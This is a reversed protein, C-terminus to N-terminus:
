IGDAGIYDSESMPGKRKAFKGTLEGDVAFTVNCEQKKTIAKYVHGIRLIESSTVQVDGEVFRDFQYKATTGSDGIVYYSKLVGDTTINVVGIANGPEGISPQVKFWTNYDAM